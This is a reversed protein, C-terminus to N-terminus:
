EREISERISIHRAIKTVLIELKKIKVHIALAIFIGIIFSMFLLLDTAKGVGLLNALRLGLFPFLIIIGCVTSLFCIIIGLNDGNSILKLSYIFLIAMTLFLFITVIM